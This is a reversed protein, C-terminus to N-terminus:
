RFNNKWFYFCDALFDLELIIPGLFIFAINNMIKEKGEAYKMTALKDFIGIIWALPILLQAVVMFAIKFILMFM